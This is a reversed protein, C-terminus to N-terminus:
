YSELSARGEENDDEDDKDDEVVDVEIPDGGEELGAEATGVRPYEIRIGTGDVIDLTDVVVQYGITPGTTRTPGSGTGGPGAVTVYVIRLSGYTIFM